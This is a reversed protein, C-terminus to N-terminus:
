GLPKSPGTIYQLWASEDYALDKGTMIKLSRHAQWAIGFDKQNLLPVLQRAVDIQKYHQLAEAAAIRVDKQEDTSTVVKLLANVANPDPVRNLAKAGELRIWVSNDTLAEIFIPTSQKDRARNLARIATARVLPDTDQKAMQRYYRVYPDKLGYGHDAFFLVADRRDDPRNSTFLAAKKKPEGNFREGIERFTSCGTSFFLLWLHVCIFVSLFKTKDTNM